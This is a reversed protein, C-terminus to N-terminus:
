QESFVCERRKENWICKNLLYESIAEQKDPVSPPGPLLLSSAVSQKWLTSLKEPFFWPFCYLTYFVVTETKYTMNEKQGLHGGTLM